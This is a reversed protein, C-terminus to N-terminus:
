SSLCALLPLTFFIFFTSFEVKPDWSGGGGVVRSTSFFYNKRFSFWKKLVKHLFHIKVISFGLIVKKSLGGWITSKSAVCAIVVVVGLIEHVVCAIKVKVHNQWRLTHRHLRPPAGIPFGGMCSKSFQNKPWKSCLFHFFYSTSFSWGGLNFNEGKKSGKGILM